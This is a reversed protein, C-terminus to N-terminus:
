IMLPVGFRVSIGPAPVPLVMPLALMLLWAGISRAGLFNAIDGLSVSDGMLSRVHAALLESLRRADHQRPDPGAISMGMGTQAQLHWGRRQEDGRSPLATM